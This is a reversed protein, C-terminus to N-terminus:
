CAARQRDLDAILHDARDADGARRAALLVFGAHLGAEVLDLVFHVLAPNRTPNFFQPQRARSGRGMAGRLRAYVRNHRDKVEGWPLPSPFSRAYRRNLQFLMARAHSVVWTAGVM